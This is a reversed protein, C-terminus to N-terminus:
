KFSHQDMDKKGRIKRTRQGIDQASPPFDDPSFVDKIDQRLNKQNDKVIFVYDAKKEEVIFRATERQTHLADASVTAGEIPLPELLEKLKPIENTKEDVDVQGVVLAEQQVIASLLHPPKEGVDCSRRLSKGDISIVKNSDDAHELLWKGVRIDIEVPDIKQLVRRITPESPPDKRKAGLKRLLDPSASLAWEYIACFSRAGSLAACIAIALITEVRHRIGRRKRPDPIGRLLEILGGEGDLPLRNVDLMAGVEQERIIDLPLFLGNLIERAREQLPFVFIYKPQNNKWYLRNNKSYGRTIGLKHWGAAKYCTGDFRGCDVFTEALVVKHGHYRLWDESLRKTNMALIHSALNPLHWGPLILFRTNNAIFKLRRYKLSSDWGIWRDRVGCKLAASGWGLLAVWEDGCTVVYYLSEGVIHKFGLYHYRAMLAQWRSREERRVLRIAFPLKSVKIKGARSLM